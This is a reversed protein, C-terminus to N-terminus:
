GIKGCPMGEIRDACWRVYTGRGGTGGKRQEAAIGHGRKGWSESERM